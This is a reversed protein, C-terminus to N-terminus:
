ATAAAASTSEVAEGEMPKRGWVYRVQIYSHIRKDRLDKRLRALYVQFEDAPWKMVQHWLFTSYGELDNDLTLQLYRGTEALRPDRAWGGIPVKYTIGHRDVFGAAELAKSQIDDTVPLFPIGIRAGGEILLTDVTRWATDKPLTDDDTRVIVEPEASQVWGGPKCVRYAQQFLKNWDSIAGILMRMHVFDFTGDDWTWDKTCDDIELKLNPPVWTPQIPSLDTGIVEANPFEDAIDIAWIGTGTGIDLIKEPNEGIPAQYLKDELLLQLYHHSIDVSERQQEDNPTFYNSNHRESHFSRGQLTRYELISSAISATSDMQSEADGIASDADNTADADDDDVHEAAEIPATTSAAPPPSAEAQASTAAAASTSAEAPAAPAKTSDAM